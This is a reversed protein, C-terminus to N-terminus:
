VSNLVELMRDLHKEKTFHDLYHQHARESMKTYEESSLNMLKTLVEALHDKDIDNAALMWGTKEHVIEEPIGAHETSVVPTGCAMAEIISLPQGEWPYWTPLVLVHAEELLIEKVKGSVTGNYKAVENLPPKGIRNHFSAKLEAARGVGGQESVSEVFGGCFDVHFKFSSESAVKESAELLVYYGKTEMLNSLYLIKWPAGEGPAQKQILKTDLALGNPVVTIIEPKDLFEFQSKLLQGLVIIKSTRRLTWRVILKGLSSRSEYFSRYGGGHLHIVVKKRFIWAGVIILFDKVFGFLSTSVTLYVLDVTLMKFWAEVVRTLTFALRSWGFRGASNAAGSQTLNVERTQAGIEKLHDCLLDFAVSVGM